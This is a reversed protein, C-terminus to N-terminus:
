PTTLSKMQAKIQGMPVALSPRKRKPKPEDPKPLDDGNDAPLYMGVESSAGIGGPLNNLFAVVAESEEFLDFLTISPLRGRKKKGVSNDVPKLQAEKLSWPSM